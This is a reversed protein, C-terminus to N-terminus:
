AKHTLAPSVNSLPLIDNLAAAVAETAVCIGTNIASGVDVVLVSTVLVGACNLLSIPAPVPFPVTVDTAARVIPVVPVLIVLVTALPVVVGTIVKFTGSALAVALPTIVIPVCVMAPTFVNEFLQMNEDIIVPLRSPLAVVAVVQAVALVKVIPAVPLDTFPEALTAQVNASIPAAAVVWEWM